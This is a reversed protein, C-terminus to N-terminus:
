IEVLPQRRRRHEAARALAARLAQLDIPKSVFDDMGAEMCAQRDEERANATMAVVPVRGAAGPLARIARTADVGDLEPMQMDMLVLDWTQTRVQDVAQAGDAVVVTRHGLRDLFAEILLQNVTNDEAVLVRLPAAPVAMPDAAVPSAPMPQEPSRAFRMTATFCSGAGPESHVQIQGGMRQVVERTIALGLGSGGHRRATSSDVQTFREFLTSMMAPPIGIGTDTVQVQLWVAGGGDANTGHTQSLRVKVSGASTFKLANGVLNFLVQQMRVSDGLLEGPVAEDVELVLPLGQARARDELMALVDETVRRPDFPVVQLDLHGAEIRSLDLIDNILSLLLQGSSRVLEAHRRQQPDLESGLLLENLGLVANLPTRIEHSMNALFQSKAENAAEAARKARALRREAASIDRYVSVTGGDPTRREVANVALGNPLVQEWGQEPAAQRLALRKAIWAQRVEAADHRHLHWASAEVLKDVPLGVALVPRLWPFLEEYRHNWRLVRDDADCLLFADGMSALAQDLTASSLALAQRTRALRLLEWHALAAALLVFTTFAGAVGAIANRDQRWSALADVVPQGVSILLGPYLSPRVALRAPLGNLRDQALRARGDGLDASLPPELKRATRAGDPPVSMLLRGDDRELTVTLGAVNVSSAVVSALLASPVEAVGLMRRGGPLSVARAILVSREGTHPGTVPDSVVLGPIALAMAQERLGPPLAIGSRNSGPLSAALTRGDADLLAVDAFILQRDNLAALLAHALAVDVQDDATLAPRLVDVLGALLLDASILTRNLDAEAGSVLQAVQQDARDLADHRGAQLLWGTTVAVAALFLGATVWVWVLIRRQSSSLM